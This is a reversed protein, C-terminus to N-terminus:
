LGSGFCMRESLGLGKGAIFSAVTQSIKGILVPFGAAAKESPWKIMWPSAHPLRLDCQIIQGCRGDFGIKYLLGARVSIM